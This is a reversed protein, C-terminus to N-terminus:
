FIIFIPITIRLDFAIIGNNKFYNYSLSADMLFMSIGIAGHFGTKFTEEVFNRIGTGEKYRHSTEFYGFSIGGELTPMLLIYDSIIPPFFYHVGTKVILLNSSIASYHSNKYFDQRGPFHQYGATGYLFVPLLKNDTYSFKFDFGVGINHSESYEAIPIRPGVGLGMFTGRAEGLEYIQPFYNGALVLFLIFFKKM